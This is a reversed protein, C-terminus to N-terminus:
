TMDAGCNPCFKNNGTLTPEGCNSCDKYYKGNRPNRYCPGWIGKPRVEITNVIADVPPANDILKKFTCLKCNPSCQREDPSTFCVECVENKVQEKLASRSICDDTPNYPTSRKIALMGNVIDTGFMDPVSQAENIRNFMDEDVEVLIKIKSM